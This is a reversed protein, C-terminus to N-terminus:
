EDVSLRIVIFSSPAARGDQAQARTNRTMYHTIYNLDSIVSGCGGLALATERAAVARTNVSRAVDGEIGHIRNSMAM